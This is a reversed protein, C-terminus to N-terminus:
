NPRHGTADVKLLLQADRAIDQFCNPILHRLSLLLYPGYLGLNPVHLAPHLVQPPSQPLGISCNLLLNYATALISALQM